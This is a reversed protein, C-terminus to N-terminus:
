TIRSILFHWHEHCCTYFIPFLARSQLHLFLFLISLNVQPTSMSHRSYCALVNHMTQEFLLCIIDSHSSTVENSHLQHNLQPSHMPEVSRFHFFVEEKMIKMSPTSQSLREFTTIRMCRENRQREDQNSYYYGREYLAVLGVRCLKMTTARM